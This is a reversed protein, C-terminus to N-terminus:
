DWIESYKIAQLAQETQNALVTVHGMQKIAGISDEGYFHFHWDPQLAIQAYVDELYSGLINVTVAPQLLQVEPLPWGCIGRIHLEFQSFDCAEISYYGAHHPHPILENVYITGSSTMLMEIGLVGVLQMGEAIQKGLRQAEEYVDGDIRAPVISQHLINLRHNNESVPLISVQGQQNRAITVALEREFPIWAELVGVGRKLIEQCLHIDEEEYMVVQDRGEHSNRATKLVCPFGISEVAKEIDLTDIVVAYPAINIKNAELFAKELSRDQTITLVELGQPIRVKNEVSALLDIDVEKFEYTLVDCKEAMHRIAEPNNCSAQIQWDAVQAASGNLKADLVGVSFGLKKAALALMRGHQGGGIIGITQGPLVMKTSNM